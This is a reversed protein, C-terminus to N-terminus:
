TLAAEAHSASEFGCDSPQTEVLGEPRVHSSRAEFPERDVKLV